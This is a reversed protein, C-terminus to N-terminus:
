IRKGIVNAVAKLHDKTARRAASKDRKRLANVIVIHEKRVQEPRDQVQLSIDRIEKILDYYTDIFSVFLPNGSLSALRYHFYYDRSNIEIGQKEILDALSEIDSDSAIEIVKEVIKCEVSERFELLNLYSAKKLETSLNEALNSEQNRIVTTGERPTRKLFGRVEMVTLAERLIGRSVGMQQALESEPLLKDGVAIEGSRIIQLLQQIVKESLREAKIRPIQAAM